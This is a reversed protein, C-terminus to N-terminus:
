SLNAHECHLTTMHMDSGRRINELHDSLLVEITKAIWIHHESLHINIGTIFKTKMIKIEEGTPLHQSPSSPTLIQHLSNQDLISVRSTATGM